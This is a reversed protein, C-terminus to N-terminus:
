GQYILQGKDPTNILAEYKDELLHRKIKLTPTLLGNEVTWDDKMIVLRDLVAHSELGSNVSALTDLLSKELREKDQRQADESLVVLAIPQKLQSGTVCVQEVSSNGMILAEIPVPAIYKGKATKFIEKLRGTIKIYGDSDIAGKDGTKLYGDDTFVEATKEAELYYEKMNCPGKVQIEGEEAIRIDVGEYARGISGIKDERFPVCCTGYASNETMGWGESINVGVKLFWKLTAPSIPASGSACMRAQDLGLKARIKGAVVKGVFPIKLLLDLKKQPMNALVGMQFRTWLRPVSIFLTPRLHCIDRNFTDLSEIFGIQTNAYFSAMEVLVRETIHALPLYSLIRDSGDVDLERRSNSAAWSISSYTHVVGKPNGTSGSTYIITMTSDMEPIPREMYPENLLLSEWDRDAKIGPYPFALTMVDDPIAAVQEATDDLKGVFIAACSAHSLVYQITKKGATSYIPVSIHGALMIALDTIFWEACNKSLLAIHSGAPLDLAILGSAVRRVQDATQAWTHSLVAGNVPQKLYVKQPTTDEWHYMMELPTQLSM